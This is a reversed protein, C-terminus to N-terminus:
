EDPLRGEPLDKAFQRKLKAVGFAWKKALATHLADRDAYFKEITPACVVCYQGKRVVGFERTEDPELEKGCGDCKFFVAM